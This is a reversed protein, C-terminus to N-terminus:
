GALKVTETVSECHWKEQLRPCPKGWRDCTTARFVINQAEGEDRATVTSQGGYAGVEYNVTYLKM